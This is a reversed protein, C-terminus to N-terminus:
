KKWIIKVASINKLELRVNSLAEFGNKLYFNLPSRYMEGNKKKHNNHDIVWGNLEVEKEKALSLMKTGLGMGQIEPDLLIAFWKEGDRIFDFYWGRIKKNEDLVLLHSVKKLHTLYTDFDILTDYNLREPYVTNWLMLLEARQSESLDKFNYFKM